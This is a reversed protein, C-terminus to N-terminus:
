KLGHILLVPGPLYKRRCIVNKICKVQSRQLIDFHYNQPLIGVVIVSLGVAEAKGYFLTHFDRRGQDVYVLFQMFVQSTGYGAMATQCLPRLLSNQHQIGYKRNSGMLCIGMATDAPFFERICCDHGQVALVSRDYEDQPSARCLTLLAHQIIRLMQDQLRRMWTGKRRESSEESAPRKALGIFKQAAM